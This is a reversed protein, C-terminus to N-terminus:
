IKRSLRQFQLVRAIEKKPQGFWICSFM